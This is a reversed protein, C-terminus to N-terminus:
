GIRSTKLLQELDDLMGRPAADAGFRMMLNGFPDILLVEAPGTAPLQRALDGDPRQRLVTLRPHESLITALGPTQGGEPALALRRVRIRDEALADHIQRTEYLRQRCAEGCQPGVAHVLTWHGRLDDLAYGGGDARSAAFSELPQAPEILSGHMEGRPAIQPALAYWAGAVLVPAVFVAVILLLRRRAVAVPNNSRTSM